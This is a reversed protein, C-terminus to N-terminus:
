YRISIKWMNRGSILGLVYERRKHLVERERETGKLEEGERGRERSCTIYRYITIYVFFSCNISVYM